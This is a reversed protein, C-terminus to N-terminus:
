SSGQIGVHSGNLGNVGGGGGRFPNPNTQTHDWGHGERCRKEKLHPSRIKPESPMQWGLLQLRFATTRPIDSTFRIQDWFHDIAQKQTRQNWAIEFSGPSLFNMCVKPLISLLPCAPSNLPLEHDGGTPEGQM